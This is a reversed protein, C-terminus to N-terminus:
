LAEVAEKCEKLGMGTIGRCYKIAHILGQSDRIEKTTAQWSKGVVISAADVVCKPHKKAIQRVIQFFDNEGDLIDMVESYWNRAM